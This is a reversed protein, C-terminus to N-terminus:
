SRRRRLMGAAALPLLAILSPEPISSGFINVESMSLVGADDASGVGGQGSNDPDPTRSISVYRGSLGSPFSGTLSAPNGLVNEPNLLPSTYVVSGSGDKVTVTIDRLRQQCCGDGRNGIDFGELNMVEGFDVTWAPNTDTSLTHTFDNTLGNVASGAAFGGLTSSQSVSMTQINAHTLNTNLPLLQSTLTFVRVEGMSLVAAAHSGSADFPTREVRLFRANTLLSGLNVDIFSPSGLSNSANIGAVTGIVTGGADKVIVTLDQLREPCCGDGRNHLRVVNFARDSSLDVEWWENAGGPPPNNHTSTGNNGDIANDAVWSANLTSSQTASSGTGTTINVPVFINTARVCATTLLTLTLCLHAARM